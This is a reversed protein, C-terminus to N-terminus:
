GLDAGARIVKAPVGAVTINDGVNNIVVAGAGVTSWAGVELQGITISGSGIFSGDNVIVDGNIVSNTSLNVHDSVICGHEVLAKTNIICNDGIKANSNIIAMKGVFCATGIIAKSSIIDSKDIINILKLGRDIICDYWKKRTINNGIAIFYVFNQNNKLDDLNRTLIPYGLHEKKDTFEDIFGVVEYNFYDIADLVSKAYGGAGVIVLKEM